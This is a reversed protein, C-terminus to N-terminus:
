AVMQGQFDRFRQLAPTHGFPELLAGALRYIQKAEQHDGKRIWTLVEWLRVLAVHHQYGVNTWIRRSTEFFDLASEYDREVLKQLGRVLSFNATDLPQAHELAQCQEIWEFPISDLPLDLHIHSELALQLWELRDEEGLNRDEQQARSLYEQCAYRDQKWLAAKARNILLLIETDKDMHEVTFAEQFLTEALEFRGQRILLEMYNANILWKNSVDVKRALSQAERYLFDARDWGEGSESLHLTFSALNQLVRMQGSLDRLEKRKALVQDLEEKVRKFDGRQGRNMYVAFRNHQIRNKLAPNDIHALRSEAADLWQLLQDYHRHAHEIKALSEYIGVLEEVYFQHELLPMSHVDLQELLDKAQIFKERSDGSDKLDNLRAHYALYVGYSPSMSSTTELLSECKQRLADYQGADYHVRLVQGTLRGINADDNISKFLDIAQEYHVVADHPNGLYAQCDGTLELLRARRSTYKDHTIHEIVLCTLDYIRQCLSTFIQAPTATLEALVISAEEWHEGLVWYYATQYLKRDPQHDHWQAIYSCIATFDRRSRMDRAAENYLLDLISHNRKIHESYKQVLEDLQAADVWGLGQAITGCLLRVDDLSQHTTKRLWGDLELMAKFAPPLREIEDRIFKTGPKIEAINKIAARLSGAERMNNRAQQMIIPLLAPLGRCAYYLCEIDAGDLQDWDAGDLQEQHVYEAVAAQDLLPVKIQVDRDLADLPYDATIVLVSSKVQRALQGVFAELQVDPRGLPLYLLYPQERSPQELATVIQECDRQLRAQLGLGPSKSNGREVHTPLDKLDIGFLQCKLAIVLDDVNSILNENVPWPFIKYGKKQQWEACLTLAIAGRGCGINGHLLVVPNTSNLQTRAQRLLASRGVLRPPEITRTDSHNTSPNASSAAKM